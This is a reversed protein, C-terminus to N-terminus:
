SINRTNHTIINLLDVICVVLYLFHTVKRGVVGEPLEVQVTDQM